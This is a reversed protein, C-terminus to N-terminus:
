GGCGAIPPAIFIVDGDCLKTKIGDFCWIMRCGPLGQRQFSIMFSTPKLAESDFIYPEGTQLNIYGASRLQRSYNEIIKHLLDEINGSGKIQYDEEGKGITEKVHHSYKVKVTIEEM